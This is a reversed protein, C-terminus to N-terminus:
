RPLLDSLSMPISQYPPNLEISANIGLERLCLRQNRVETPVRCATDRDSKSKVFAKFLSINDLPHSETVFNADIGLFLDM